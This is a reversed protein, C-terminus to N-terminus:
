AALAPQPGDINRLRRIGLLRAKPYGSVNVENGQNGGLVYLLERKENYYEFFAVHGQWGNKKGRWFIVVDGPRADRLSVREGVDLWSRAALSDSCERGTAKAMANVFSSCWATEDDSVWSAVTRAWRVILPNDRKGPIEKTGIYTRALGYPDLLTDGSEGATPDDQMLARAVAGRTIPGPEGDATIGLRNQITQWMRSATLHGTIDIGLAEAAAAATEPGPINDVTIARDNVSVLERQIDAWTDLNM